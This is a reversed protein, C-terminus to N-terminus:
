VDALLKQLHEDQEFWRKIELTQRMMDGTIPMVDRVAIQVHPPLFGVVQDFASLAQLVSAEDATPNAAINQTIEQFRQAAQVFEETQPMDLQAYQEGLRKFGQTMPAALAGPSHLTNDLMAFSQQISVAEDSRLEVLARLPTPIEGFGPKLRPQGQESFTLGALPILDWDGEIRTKHAGIQEPSFNYVYLGIMALKLGWNKVLRLIPQHISFAYLHGKGLQTLTRQLNNLKYRRPASAVENSIWVSQTVARDDLPREPALSEWLIWYDRIGAQDYRQHKAEIADAHANKYIVEYAWQRGDPLSAYVDPKLREVAKGRSLWVGPHALELCRAIGSLMLEHRSDPSGKAM